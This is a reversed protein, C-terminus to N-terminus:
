AGGKGSRYRVRNATHYRVAAPRVVRDSKRTPRPDAASTAATPLDTVLYMRPATDCYTVSGHALDGPRGELIDWDLM